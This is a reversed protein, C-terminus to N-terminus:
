QERADLPDEQAPWRVGRKLEVYEVTKAAESHEEHHEGVQAERPEADHRSQVEPTRTLVADVEEEQQTGEQEGVLNQDSVPVLM